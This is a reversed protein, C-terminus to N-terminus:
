TVARVRHLGRDLTLLYAVRALRPRDPSTSGKGAISVVLSAVITVVLAALLGMAWGAIVDTPWHVGLVLRSVGIAASLLVGSVVSLCRAIPRRFVYMAVILSLTVLMATSDTAHGSPFSADSEAVLHLAVPPRGRGVIGKAVGASVGAVVLSLGPALALALRQGRMWLVSAALVAILALVVPSGIETIVRSVSVLLGSRHHVFWQLRSPDARSTGNHQTVDETVGGFAMTTGVLVALGSTLALVGSTSLGLWARLRHLAEFAREIPTFLM